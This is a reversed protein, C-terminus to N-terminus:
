ALFEHLHKKGKSINCPKCAVRLNDATHSGGHFLSVVHDLTVNKLTCVIGCLYCTWKDREIIAMRDIKEIRPANRERARRRQRAEARKERHAKGWISALERRRPSRWYARREASHTANYARYNQLLRDRNAAHFRQWWARRRDPYKRMSRRSIERYKEPHTDYNAKKLAKDCDKCKSHPRRQGKTPGKINTKGNRYFESLPKEVHCYTCRKVMIGVENEFPWYFRGTPDNQYQERRKEHDIAVECAKCRARFYGPDAPSFESIPKVEQCKLCKKTEPKKQPPNLKRQARWETQAANRCERCETRRYKGKKYLEFTEEPKEVGCKTCRKM